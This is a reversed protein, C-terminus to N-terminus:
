PADAGTARELQVLAIRLDVRASLAAIRARTVEAEADVVEVATARELAMLERRVRYSEEAAALGQATTDISRQAIQLNSAAQVVEVRIGEILRDRDALLGRVEADLGDASVRSSLVDNLSWTLSLGVAWTLDFRDQSPVIRQNPNAYNVQGFAALRPLVNREANRQLEKARIGAEFTRLEPRRKLALETLAAVTQAAPVAPAQRLDEGIVLEEEAAAGIALRLVEGRVDVVGGLQAAAQKAQALQAEVRLQDARSARQVEVLARVQGLTAEVQTVSREAVVQQLRARVWEYYAVRAASAVSVATSDQSARASVLAQRASAVLDPIRLVYDSLPVAIEASASYANLFVPFTFGGGLVPPDISSLRTYQLTGALRPVNVLQVKTAAANAQAVDAARRRVEPSVARARTAAAAATLGEPRFLADVAADISDPPASPSDALAAPASSSLLWTAALILHLRKM